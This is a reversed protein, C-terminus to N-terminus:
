SRVRTKRRVYPVRKLLEIDFPLLERELAFELCKIVIGDQGGGTNTVSVFQHHLVQSRLDTPPCYEQDFIHTNKKRERQVDYRDNKVFLFFTRFLVFFLSAWEDNMRNQIMQRAHEIPASHLVAFQM